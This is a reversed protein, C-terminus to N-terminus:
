FFFFFYSVVHPVVEQRLHLIEFINRSTNEGMGGMHAPGADVLITNLFGADLDYQRSRNCFFFALLDVQAIHIRSLDPNRIVHPPLILADEIHVVGTLNKVAQSLCGAGIKIDRFNM